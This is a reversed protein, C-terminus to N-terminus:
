SWNLPWGTVTAAASSLLPRINATARAASAAAGQAQTGGAGAAEITAADGADAVQNPVAEGTADEVASDEPTPPPRDGDAPSCGALMLLAIM